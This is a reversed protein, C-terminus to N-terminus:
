ADLWGRLLAAEFIAPDDPSSLAERIEQDDYLAGFDPLDEFRTKGGERVCRVLRAGDGEDRNM